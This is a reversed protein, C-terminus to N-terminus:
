AKKVEASEEETEDDLIERLGQIARAVAGASPHDGTTMFGLGVELANLWAEAGTYDEDDLAVFLNYRAGELQSGLKSNEGGRMSQTVMRIAALHPDAMERVTTDAM